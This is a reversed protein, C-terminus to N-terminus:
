QRYIEEIIDRISLQGIIDHFFIREITITNIERLIPLMLLLKGFRSEVIDKNANISLTMPGMMLLQDAIKRTVYDNLVCQAQDQLKEVAIRDIIDQSESLVIIIIIIIILRVFLFILKGPKFLTIAKLCACETGDPAFKKFREIIDEIHHIDERMIMSLGSYKRDKKESKIQGEAIDKNNKNNNNALLEENSEKVGNIIKFEDCKNEQELVEMEEEAEFEMDKIESELSDVYIDVTQEIHVLPALMNMTITWHALNIIFLEKWSEEFLRKQKYSIPLM